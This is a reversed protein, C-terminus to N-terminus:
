PALNFGEYNNNDQVVTQGPRVAENVMAVIPQDATIVVGSNTNQPLPTGGGWIDKGNVDLFNLSEGAAVSQPATTYSGGVTPSFVLVINTAESSGVNMVQLGSWKPGFQEKYLPIAVETTASSAPMCSYTTQKQMQGSPVSPYYTENVIAVVDGTGEIIASGYSGSTVASPNFSTWSAGPALGTTSDTDTGSGASGAAYYYTVTVDIASTSVNMVQIGTYRGGWNQKWLPAYAQMDFDSPTFGKTAQLVTAPSESAKHENVVGAIPEDSTVTLAGLSDNGSPVSADAPNLVVMQNPGVGTYTHTFTGGAVVYVADLTADATGANQIFFTTTKAPSGYSNKVLPFVVTTDTKSGDVGQYQAAAAGGSVGLSGLLLNTENVIAVVPQDSSVVASGIFGEPMGTFDGPLYTYSGGSAVSQSPGDYTATSESDYATIVLTGDSDGVNQVQEGSWWGSGPLNAPGQASALTSAMLVGVILLSLTLIYKKM